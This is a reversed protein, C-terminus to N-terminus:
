IRTCQRVRVLPISTNLKEDRSTDYFVVLSMRGHARREVVCVCVCFVFCVHSVYRIAPLLFLKIIGKCLGAGLKALLELLMSHLHGYKQIM